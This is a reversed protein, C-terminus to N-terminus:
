PNSNVDSTSLNLLKAIERARADESIARLLLSFHTRERTEIRGSAVVERGVKVKYNYNGRRAIGIREEPPCSEDNVIEITLM